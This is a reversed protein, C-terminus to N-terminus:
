LSLRRMLFGPMLRIVLMIFRWFGPTYLTFARREVANVIDRAVREPTATLLAPLKLHSTMPTAVFGPKVTLVHVGHAHLRAALGECFTSVAAKAAGYLYNSARGRDGAVSSIVAITGSGAVRMREAIATTVAIVSTANTSFERAAQAPDAQCQSQDPLTGQAILAIDLGQLVSAADLMAAHEDIRNLDLVHCFVEAAGRIKLDDAIQQLRAADRGVLFFRAPTEAWKRACATAIASTAGIVLIRKM